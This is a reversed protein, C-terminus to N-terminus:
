GNSFSLQCGALLCENEQLLNQSIEENVTENTQTEMKKTKFLYNKIGGEFFSMSIFNQLM